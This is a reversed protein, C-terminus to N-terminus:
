NGSVRSTLSLATNASAKIWLTDTPLVPCSARAQTALALAAVLLLRM